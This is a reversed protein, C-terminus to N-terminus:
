RCPTRDYHTGVDTFLKAKPDFTDVHSVGGPMFLVIVRKARAPSPPVRPVLTNATGSRGADEAPLQHLIGPMVLSGAVFSRLLHRRPSAASLFIPDSFHSKMNDHHTM